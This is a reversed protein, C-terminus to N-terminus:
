LKPPLSSLYLWLLKEKGRLRFAMLALGTLPSVGLFVPAAVRLLTRM